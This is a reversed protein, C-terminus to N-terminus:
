LQLLSCRSCTLHLVTNKHLTVKISIVCTKQRVQM